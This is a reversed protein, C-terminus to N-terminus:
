YLFYKHAYFSFQKLICLYILIVFVECNLSGHFVRHELYYLVNILQPRLQFSFQFQRYSSM